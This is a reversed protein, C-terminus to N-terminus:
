CDGFLEKIKSLTRHKSCRDSLIIAEAEKVSKDLDDNIIFYNYFACDKLEERAQSIVRTKCRGTYKFISAVLNWDSRPFYARDALLKFNM